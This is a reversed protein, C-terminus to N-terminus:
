ETAAFDAIENLINEISRTPRCSRADSALSHNLIVWPLDLPRRRSDRGVKHAGWRTAYWSSLQRLSRASARGGSVNIVSPKRPDLGTKLQKAVLAALDSPHLCDRVQHGHGDFGIYNLLRKERWSHLWFAFIGQDAKGFQGAGALVGCRNIWVPFGYRNM